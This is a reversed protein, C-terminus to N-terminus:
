LESDRFAPRLESLPSVLRSAGPGARGSRPRLARSIGPIRQPSSFPCLYQLIGPDQPRALHLPQRPKASPPRGKDQNKQTRAGAPLGENRTRPLGTAPLRPAAAQSAVRRGRAPPPAVSPEASHEQARPALDAAEGPFRRRRGPSARRPTLVESPCAAVSAAFACRIADLRLRGTDLAFLVLMAFLRITRETSRRAGATPALRVLIAFLGKRLSTKADRGHAM